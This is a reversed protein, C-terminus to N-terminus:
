NTPETNTYLNTIESYQLGGSFEPPPPLVITDLFDHPCQYDDMIADKTPAGSLRKRTEKRDKHLRHQPNSEHRELIRDNRSQDDQRQASGRLIECLLHDYEVTGDFVSGNIGSDDDRIHIREASSENRWNKLEFDTPLPVHDEDSGTADNMTAVPLVIYEETSPTGELQLNLGTNTSHRKKTDVLRPRLHFGRCLIIRTVDQDSINDEAGLTCDVEQDKCGLFPEKTGRFFPLKTSSSTSKRSSETKKILDRPTFSVDQNEGPSHKHKLLSASSRKIRPPFDEFHKTEVKSLASPAPQSKTYLKSTREVLPKERTHSELVQRRRMWNPRRFESTGISEKNDPAPKPVLRVCAVATKQKSQGNGNVSRRSTCYSSTIGNTVTPSFVNLSLYGTDESMLKLCREFSANEVNTENIQFLCIAFKKYKL